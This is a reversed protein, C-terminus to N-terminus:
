KEEPAPKPDDLPPKPGESLKNMLDIVRVGREISEDLHFTIEPAHHLRIRRGVETRIFGTASDLGQAARKKEEDTGMMSFFVKAQRLDSSVEVDTISLFGVRPDKMESRLIDSIERRLARAVRESRLEDM